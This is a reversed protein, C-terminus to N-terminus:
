RSRPALYDDFAQLGAFFRKVGEDWPLPESIRWKQKGRALSLAWDLLDGIHALIEGPTRTTEAPGSVGRIRRARRALGQRRSLGPYGLTHRLM